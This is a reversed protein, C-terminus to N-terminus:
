KIKHLLLFFFVVWVYSQNKFLGVRDDAMVTDVLNSILKRLYEQENVIRNGETLEHIIHLLIKRENKNNAHVLIETLVPLLILKKQFYIKTEKNELAKKVIEAASM